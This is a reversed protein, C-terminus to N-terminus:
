VKRTIEIVVYDSKQREARKQADREDSADVEVFTESRTPIRALKVNWSEAEASLAQYDRNSRAAQAIAESQSKARVSVTRDAGRPKRAMGVKYKPM